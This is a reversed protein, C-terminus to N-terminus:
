EPDPNVIRKEGQDSQFDQTPLEPTVSPANLTSEFYRELLAPCSEPWWNREACAIYTPNLKARWVCRKDKDPRFSTMQEDIQWEIQGLFEEHISGIDAMTFATVNIGRSLYAERIMATFGYFVSAVINSHQVSAVSGPDSPMCPVTLRCWLAVNAGASEYTRFDEVDLEALSTSGRCVNRIASPRLYWSEIFGIVARHADYVVACNYPNKKAAAAMTHPAIIDTVKYTKILLATGAQVHGGNPRLVVVPRRDGVVMPAIANPKVVFQRIGGFAVLAGGVVVGAVDPAGVFSSTAGIAVAVGGVTMHIHPKMAVKGAHIAASTAKAVLRNRVLRTLNHTTRRYKYGM